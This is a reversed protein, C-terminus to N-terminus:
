TWRDIDLKGASLVFDDGLSKLSYEVQLVLVTCTWVDFLFFTREELNM